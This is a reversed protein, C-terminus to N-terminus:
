PALLLLECQDKAVSRHHTHVSLQCWLKDEDTVAMAFSHSACQIWEM